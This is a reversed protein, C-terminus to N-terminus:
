GVSADYYIGLCLRWTLALSPVGHTLFIVQEVASVASGDDDLKDLFDVAFLNYDKYCNSGM